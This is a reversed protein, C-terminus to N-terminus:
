IPSKLSFGGQRLTVGPRIQANEWLLFNFQQLTRLRQVHERGIMQGIATVDNASALPFLYSREANGRYHASVLAPRQTVAVMEIGAHRGQNILRLAGSRDRPLATVPLSLNAEEILLCIKERSRGVLYAAQIEWLMVSLFHLAEIEGGAPPVYSVQFGTRWKRRIAKLVSPRDDCCVWGRKGRYEALPDFAVVRSFQSIVARSLHTKGSGRRGVILTLSADKM